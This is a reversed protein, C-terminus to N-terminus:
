PRVDKHDFPIGVHVVPGSRDRDVFFDQTDPLGDPQGSRKCASMSGPGGMVKTPASPLGNKSHTM